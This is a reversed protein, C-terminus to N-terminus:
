RFSEALKMAEETNYEITLKKHNVVDIITGIFCLGATFFYLLGMGIQGIVFRHIGSFGLFGILALILMTESDKRRSGYTLLFSRAQSEDMTKIINELFIVEETEIRPLLEMVNLM